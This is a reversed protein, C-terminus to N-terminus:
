GAVALRRDVALVAALAFALGGALGGGVDGIWHANLYVRSVGVALTAAAGSVWAVQRWRAPAGCAWLVYLLLVTFVVIGFTHASPYSWLVMNPRQRIMLVKALNVVLLGAAGAGAMAAALSPQRPLLVLCVLATAPVVAGGSGLATFWRMPQELAPTRARQAFHKVAWESEITLRLEAALALAFFAAICVLMSM